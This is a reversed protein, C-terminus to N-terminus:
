IDINKIKEESREDTLRHPENSSDCMLNQYKKKSKVLTPNKALLAAQFHGREQLPNLITKWM